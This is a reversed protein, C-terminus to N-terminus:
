HIISCVIDDKTFPIKKKQFLQVCFGAELLTVIIELLPCETIIVSGHM